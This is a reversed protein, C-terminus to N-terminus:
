AGEGEHIREHCERCVAVLEFLFEDGLNKYTKHHVDLPKGKMGCGECTYNARKLVLVRKTDWARSRIYEKYEINKAPKISKAFEKDNRFALMIWFLLNEGCVKYGFFYDPTDYKNILVINSCASRLSKLEDVSLVEPNELYQRIRQFLLEYCDENDGKTPCGGDGPGRFVDAWHPGEIMEKMRKKFFDSEINLESM